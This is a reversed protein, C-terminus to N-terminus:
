KRYRTWSQDQDYSGDGDHRVDETDTPEMAGIVLVLPRDACEVRTDDHQQDDQDNEVGVVQERLRLLTYRAGRHPSLDLTNEHFWNTVDIKQVLPVLGLPKRRILPRDIFRGGESREVLRQRLTPHRHQSRATYRVARHGGPIGVGAIVEAEVGDIRSGGLGVERHAVAVVVGGVGLDVDVCHERDVAKTFELGIAGNTRDSGPQPATEHTTDVFPGVNELLRCRCQGLLQVVVVDIQEKQHRSSRKVVLCNTQDCSYDFGSADGGHKNGCASVQGLQDPWGPGHEDVEGHAVWKAWCVFGVVLTVDEPRSQLHHVPDGRRSLDDVDLIGPLVIEGVLDRLAQEGHSDASM